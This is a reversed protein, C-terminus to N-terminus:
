RPSKSQIARVIDPFLDVEDTSITTEVANAGHMGAIICSRDPLSYAKYECALYWGDLDISANPLLFSMRWDKKKINIVSFNNFRSSISAHKILPISDRYNKFIQSDGDKSEIVGFDKGDASITFFNTINTDNLIAGNENKPKCSVLASAALSVLFTKCLVNVACVGSLLLPIYIM